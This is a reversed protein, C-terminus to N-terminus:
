DIERRSRRYEEERRAEAELRDRERRAEAELRDKERQRYEEERRAEDALRNREKQADRNLHRKARETLEQSYRENIELEVQQTKLKLKMASASSSSSRKSLKSKSGSAARRPAATSLGAGYATRTDPQISEEVSHTEIECGAENLPVTPNKPDTLRELRKKLETVLKVSAYVTDTIQMRTTDDMEASSLNDWRQKIDQLDARSVLLQSIFCNYSEVSGEKAEIEVMIGDIEGRASKLRNELDQGLLLLSSQQEADETDQSPALKSPSTSEAM